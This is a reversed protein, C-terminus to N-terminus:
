GELNMAGPYADPTLPLINLEETSFETLSRQNSALQDVFMDLNKLIRAKGLKQFLPKAYYELFKNQNEHFTSPSVIPSIDPPIKLAETYLCRLWGHYITFPEAVCGIDACLLTMRILAFRKEPNNPDFPIANEWEKAVIM